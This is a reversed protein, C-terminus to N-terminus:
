RIDKRSTDIRFTNIQSDRSREKREGKTKCKKNRTHTDLHKQSLTKEWM